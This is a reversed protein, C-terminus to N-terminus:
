IPLRRKISLKRTDSRPKTARVTVTLTM